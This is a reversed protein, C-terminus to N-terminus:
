RGRTNGISGTIEYIPAIIAMSLAAVVIGILILLLPEVITSLNKTTADVENEYFEALFILVEDLKGTKEGVAVMRYVIPPYLPNAALSSSLSRGEQIQLMVKKLSGRYVVNAFTSSAVEVAKVIPLGSGMSTGLTRCFLALNSDRVIKKILPLNLYLRHLFPKALRTRSLWYLFAMLLFFGIYVMVGFRDFFDATAILVRTLFPLQVNFSKFLKTIKPLIFTAVSLGVVGSSVLVLIPYAMAGRIKQRLDHSKTLQIALDNLNRELNGSKEGARIVNVYLDSFVRPFRVLGESLPSGSEVVASLIKIVRRLTGSSAQERLIRLSEDIPLGAKVMVSLHKTFLVKDLNAVYGLKAYWEELFYLVDMQLSKVKVGRTELM